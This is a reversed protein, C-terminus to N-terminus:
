RSPVAGPSDAYLSTKQSQRLRLEVYYATAELENQTEVLGQYKRRQTANAPDARLLQRAAEVTTDNLAAARRMATMSTTLDARMATPLLPELADLFARSDGHPGFLRHMQNSIVRGTEGLTLTPGPPFGRSDPALDKATGEPEIGVIVPLWGSLRAFKRDEAQSTLFQLFDLAVDPHPSTRPIGLLGFTFLAGESNPGYLNAGFGPTAPGPTPNRFARVPFNALRSISTADSSFAMFMLARGQVFYFLAQERNAQMFGAPLERGVRQMLEAGGRFGPHELTWQRNLYALYLDTTDAASAPFRVGPNVESALRQLQSRFLDDMMMTGYSSVLPLLPRGTRAAHERAQQCVAMMEEFSRPPDGRGTVERMLDANYFVRITTAFVSAGYTEFMGANYANDMGDAYTNRWAVGALPSGANYPNPKAVEETIPRFYSWLEPGGMGGKIEVLDPAAGGIIQTTGWSAYIGVPVPIQEITVGPHLSEYDRAIAEFAERIGGELQWHALRLTVQRPDRPRVAHTGVRWTAGAFALALLAFGLRRYRPSRIM